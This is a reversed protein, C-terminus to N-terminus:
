NLKGTKEKKRYESPSQGTMRHFVLSFYNSDPFGCLHAINTIRLNHHLRLYIMAEHIRRETLVQRFTKGTIKRFLSSFYTYNLGLHDALDSEAINEMYHLDLYYMCQKRYYVSDNRKAPNKMLYEKIALQIFGSLFLAKKRLEPLSVTEPLITFYCVAALENQWMVPQVFEKVGFPCKGCFSRGLASIQLSRKKNMACQMNSDALKRKRCYLSHHLPQEPTMKLDDCEAFAKHIGEISIQTRCEDDLLKVITSLNM